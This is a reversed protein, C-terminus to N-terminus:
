RHNQVGYMNESPVAYSLSPMSFHRFPPEFSRAQYATVRYERTDGGPHESNEPVRPVQLHGLYGPLQVSGLPNVQNGVEHGHQVNGDRRHGINM